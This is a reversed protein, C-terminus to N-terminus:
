YPSIDSLNRKIKELAKSRHSIRQKIERSLVGFTESFKDPIFVPDYGFGRDGKPKPSITGECVGRATHLVSGDPNAIATECVFRASRSSNLTTELERLLKAVNDEDSANEGSYRSSFIGPANNLAKVELGSDDAIAYCNTKQAYYIAKLLANEAFTKGTELPEEVAPFDDLSKLEVSSDSLLKRFESVKGVNTTAILLKLM